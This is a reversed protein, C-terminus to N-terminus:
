LLYAKVADSIEVLHKRDDRAPFPAPWYEVMKVIKADRVEFFSIARAVLVADSVTM